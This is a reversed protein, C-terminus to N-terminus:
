VRRRRDDDTPPEMLWYAGAGGILAVAGMQLLVCHDRARRAIECVRACVLRLATISSFLVTLLTQPLLYLPSTSSWV